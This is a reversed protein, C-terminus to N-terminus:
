RADGERLSKGEEEGRQRFRGLHAAKRNGFYNKKGQTVFIDERADLGRERFIQRNNM